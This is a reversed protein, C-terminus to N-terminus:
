YECVCMVYWVICVYECLMGCLVSVYVMGCMSVYCEM